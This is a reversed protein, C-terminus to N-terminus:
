KLGAKRLSEAFRNKFSQSRILTLGNVYRDVKFNPDIRLVEKGETCAEKERGMMVYVYALRLHSVINDPGFIQLNKKIPAISEEYRGLNIYSQALAELVASHIPIPSLRLSKQLCPIAEQPRGVINLGEGLVFYAMASNPNLSVAKQAESLGKDFERLFYFTEALGAHLYSNSGGLALAKKGFELVQQLDEQPSESGGVASGILFSM